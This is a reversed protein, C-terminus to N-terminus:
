PAESGDGNTPPGISVIVDVTSGAPVATSGPPDTAIVLGVPVTDSEQEVLNPLLSADALAAAAQDAPIGVVNPVTAEEPEPEPEPEPDPESEPGLSIVLRVRTRKEAERDGEPTQSIVLGEDVEDSFDTTTTADFCPQPECADNLEQEADSQSMGVVDPVTATSSGRSIVLEVQTDEAVEEGAPPDTSIVQGEDVEDSDERSVDGVRLGAERLADTAQRRTMETVDPVEVLPAGSSVTLTIETDVPLQEGQEPEPDQAVVEGEETGEQEVPETTINDFGQAALRARAEEETMGVVDPLQSTETGGGSLGRWLFWGTALLALLLLVAVAIWLARNRSPEEDDEDYYSDDYYDDEPPYTEPPGAARSSVVTQDGWNRDVMQTSAYAGAMPATVPVGARARELDANFDRATQYRDERNKAMAKLTIADLEPTSEASLQSPPVPMASVHQYALAVPSDAHFPQQGALLEYLV